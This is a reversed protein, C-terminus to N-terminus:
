NSGFNEKLIQEIEESTYRYQVNGDNDYVRLTRLYLSVEHPNRMEVLPDPFPASEYEFITRATELFFDAMRHVHEKDLRPHFETAAEVVSQHFRTAWHKRSYRKIAKLFQYFRGLDMPHMSDWTPLAIWQRFYRDVVKSFFTPM